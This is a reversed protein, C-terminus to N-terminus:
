QNFLRRLSKLIKNIVLLKNKILLILQPNQALKKILSFKDVLKHNM